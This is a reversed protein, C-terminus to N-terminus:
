EPTLEPFRLVFLKESVERLGRGSNVVLTAAEVLSLIHAAFFYNLDYPPDKRMWVVDFEGLDRDACTRAFTGGSGPAASIPGAALSSTGALTPSRAACTSAAVTLYDRDPFASGDDFRVRGTWRQAVRRIAPGGIM